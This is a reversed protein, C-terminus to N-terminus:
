DKKWGRWSDPQVDGLFEFWYALARLEGFPEYRKQVEAVTPKQGGHYKDGIYRLVLSDISIEDARGYLTALLRATVPGIGPLSAFYKRVQPGDGAPEILEVDCLGILSIARYGVRAHERLHAEGAARIEASTPFCRLGGAAEPALESLRHVCRVAQTWQINTGCIGVVVDDFLSQCRILRGAGAEPVWSLAEHRRCLEHFPRPDWDLQLVRRLMGSAAERVSAPERRVSSRLEVELSGDQQTLDLRWPRAEFRFAASFREGDWAFPPIQWVGHSLVTRRLSFPGVPLPLTYSIRM